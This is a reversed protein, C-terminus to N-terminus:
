MTKPSAQAWLTRLVPSWPENIWQFVKCRQQRCAFFFRGPNKSTQAVRLALPEGCFCILPPNPDLATGDGAILQPHKQLRLNILMDSAKAEDLVLACPKQPCKVYAWGKASVHQSLPQDHFPCKLPPPPVEEIVQYEPLQALLEEISPQVNAPTNNNQLEHEELRRSRDQRKGGQRPRKQRVKECKLAREFTVPQTSGDDM